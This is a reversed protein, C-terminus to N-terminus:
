LQETKSPPFEVKDLDVEPFLLKLNAKDDRVGSGDLYKWGAEKGKTRVAIMFSTNKMKVGNFEMVSVRPVFFLEYTGAPHMKTPAALESSIFKIGLEKIQKVSDRAIKEFQEKGGVLVYVAEHTLKLMTEPNGQEVEKMMGKIDKHIEAVEAESLKEATAGQALSLGCILIPLILMTKMM